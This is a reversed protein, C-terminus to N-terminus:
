PCSNAIFGSSFLLARVMSEMRKWLAGDSEENANWGSLMEVAFAFDLQDEDLPETKVVM